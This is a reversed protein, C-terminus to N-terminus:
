KVNGGSVQSSELKEVDEGVNTMTLRDSSPWRPTLQHRVTTKIQIKEHSIIYM